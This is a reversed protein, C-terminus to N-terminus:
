DEENSVHSRLACEMGARIDWIMVPMPEETGFALTHSTARHNGDFIVVHGCKDIRANVPAFMPFGDVLFTEVMKQVTKKTAQRVQSTDDTFVIKPPLM